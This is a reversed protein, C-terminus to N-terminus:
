GWACADIDLSPTIRSEPWADSPISFRRMSASALFTCPAVSIVLARIASQSLRGADHTTSTHSTFNILSSITLTPADDSRWSWSAESRKPSPEVGTRARM